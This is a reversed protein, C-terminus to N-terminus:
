SVGLRQLAKKSEADGAAAAKRYWDIAKNRDKPVGLGTDYGLGLGFMGLANGRDAAAKYWKMAAAYDVAVGRGAYYLNGVGTMSRAYGLDAAKRYWSMAGAYDVNPVGLGLEDMYGMQNMAGLNGHSAARRDWDWAAGYDAKVGLGNQYIYGLYGMADGNGQEAALRFLLMARTYHKAEYETKGQAFLDPGPAAQVALPQVCWIFFAVSLVSTSPAKRMVGRLLIITEGVLM